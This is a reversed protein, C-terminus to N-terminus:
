CNCHHQWQNDLRMRNWSELQGAGEFIMEPM